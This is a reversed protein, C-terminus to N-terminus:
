SSFFLTYPIEKDLGRQSPFFGTPSGNVLISFKVTSICFKIWRLWRSGFGRKALTELLFKWNLHDYAKQRDLKCLIGPTNSRIKSDVVENEMLIADM